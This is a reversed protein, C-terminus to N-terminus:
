APAGEKTRKIIKHAKMVTGFPDQQAKALHADVFGQGISKKRRSHLSHVQAELNLRAAVQQLEANSLTHIGSKKLKQQSVAVKIADEHAPHDEGGATKIKTKSYKNSGITDVVKVPAPARAIRRQTEKAGRRALSSTRLEEKRVGWHMGKVGYHKLLELGIETETKM